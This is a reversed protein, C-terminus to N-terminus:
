IKMENLVNQDWVVYNVIGNDKYRTGPIGISALYESASKKSGHLITLMLYVERGDIEKKGSGEFKRGNISVWGFRDKKITLIIDIMATKVADPQEEISKDWDLLKSQIDPLNFRYVAGEQSDGSHVEASGKSETFYIGWGYSTVGRGTGVLTLTPTDGPAWVKPSGHFVEAIKITNCDIQTFFKM